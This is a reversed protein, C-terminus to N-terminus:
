GPVTATVTVIPQGPIVPTVAGPVLGARRLQDALTPSDSLAMRGEQAQLLLDFHRSFLAPGAVTTTVFLTAGPAMMAAISGLFGAREEMPVYYLVNALLAFDFPEALPGSRPATRVDTRLVRGRDALGRAALTRGALEVAGADVDIGVGHAQPAAELMAALELAAGCGVDLIRRPSRAAIERTLAGLVLPEFGRSLRAILEGQETVDRRRAGGALQTPLDRYLATHFGPFAQYSARVLDDDLVARGAATLTWRRGDDRVMGAAAVVRLFAALLEEDAVGLERALEAATAGGAVLHDLVGTEVAAGGVHLRIAALGDRNVRMRARLNGGRSIKWIAPLLPM